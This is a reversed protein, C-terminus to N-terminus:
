WPSDDGGCALNVFAALPLPYGAVEANFPAAGAGGGGALGGDGAAPMSPQLARGNFRPVVVPEGSSLVRLEVCLESAYTPWLTARRPGSGCGLRHLVPLITTDHGSFVTLRADASGLASVAQHVPLAQLQSTVDDKGLVAGINAAMHVLLGQCALRQCDSDAFVREFRWACHAIAAPGFGVEDSLYLSDDGGRKVAGGDVGTAAASVLQQPLREGHEVNCQVLDAAHIWKFPQLGTSYAPVHGEYAARIAAVEADRERLLLEESTFVRWAAEGLGNDSEFAAITCLEQPAVVVDIGGRIRECLRDALQQITDDGKVGGVRVSANDGLFGCMLSAASLQTRRFNSAQVVIRSAMAADDTDADSVRDGHVLHGYRQRLSAGVEVCQSVGLRTLNGLPNGDGDVTAVNPTSVPALRQLADICSQSPLREVWRRQVAASADADGQWHNIQPTRAGHRTVVQALLVPAPGIDIPTLAHPNHTHAAWSVGRTADSHRHGSVASSSALRTTSPPRAVAPAAAAWSPLPHAAFPAAARVLRAVVSAGVCRAHQCQM